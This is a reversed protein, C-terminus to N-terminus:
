KIILSWCLHVKTLHLCNIPVYLWLPGHCHLLKHVTFRVLWQNAFLVTTDPMFLTKLKEHSMLTFAGSTLANVFLLLDQESYSVDYHPKTPNDLKRIQRKAGRSEILRWSWYAGTNWYSRQWGVTMSRLSKRVDTSSHECQSWSVWRWWRLLAETFVDVVGM